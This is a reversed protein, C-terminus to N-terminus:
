GLLCYNKKHDENVVKSNIVLRLIDRSAEISKEDTLGNKMLSMRIEGQLDMLDFIEQPQGAM